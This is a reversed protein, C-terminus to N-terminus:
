KTVGCGDFINNEVLIDVNPTGSQDFRAMIGHYGIDSFISGQVSVGQCGQLFLGITGIHNFKCDQITIAESNHFKLAAERGWNYGDKGLSSTHQFQLGKLSIHNINSATLLTELVAIVPTADELGLPPIFSVTAQQGEQTCVVEGEQDLVARNNVVQFRWGGSEIFNGVPAHVLPEQFRVEQRGGARSVNAVKAYEAIWSHYVLVQTQDLHSWDESLEGDIVFGERDIDPCNQSYGTADRSCSDTEELLGTISHWPGKGAMQNPGWPKYLNPSRAPLLRWSDLYVEGCSGTFTKSKVRDDERQWPLNLIRGGSISVPEESFATLELFSDRATLKITEQIHYTGGLIYLTAQDDPGPITPREERISASSQIFGTEHSFAAFKLKSSRVQNIRHCLAPFGLSWQQHRRHPKTISWGLQRFGAQEILSVIQPSKLFGFPFGTTVQNSLYRPTLPYVSQLPLLLFCFELIDMRSPALHVPM